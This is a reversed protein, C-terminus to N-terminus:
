CILNLLCVSSFSCLCIPGGASVDKIAIDVGTGRLMNPDHYVVPTGDATQLVDMQMVQWFPAPRGCKEIMVREYIPRIPFPSIAGLMNEYRGPLYNESDQQVWNLILLVSLQCPPRFMSSIFLSTM